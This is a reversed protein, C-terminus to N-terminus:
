DGVNQVILITLSVKGSANFMVFSHVFVTQSDPLHHLHHVDRELSFHCKKSIGHKLM